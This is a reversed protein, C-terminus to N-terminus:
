PNWEQTMSLQTSSPSGPPCKKRRSQADWLAKVSCPLLSDGSPSSPKDKYCSGIMTASMCPLYMYRVVLAFTVKGRWKTHSSAQWIPLRTSTSNSVPWKRESCLLRRFSLWWSRLRCELEILLGPALTIVQHLTVVQSKQKMTNVTLSFCMGCRLVYVSEILSTAYTYVFHGRLDINAPFLM